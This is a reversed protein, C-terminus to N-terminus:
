LDKWGPVRRAFEQQFAPRAKNAAKLKRVFAIWEDPKKMVDVWVRRVKRVVEAQEAYRKRSHGLPASVSRPLGSQYFALVQEPYKRELQAAIELVPHREYRLSPYPMAALLKIAEDDEGRAVHIKLREEAAARSVAAMLRPSTERREAPTCVKRFAQYSGLTLRDIAQAFHLELCAQRDGAEEARQALFLRLEDMRGEGKELGERAVRLSVERQGQEWYFTALDHYDAGYKM